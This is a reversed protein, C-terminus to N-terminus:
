LHCYLVKLAELEEILAKNQKELLTVRNELSRVYEKKKRRCERAAERNKILRLERKHSTVETVEQSSHLSSPSSMTAVSQPLSVTSSCIEPASMDRTAANLSFNQYIPHSSGISIGCEPELTYDQGRSASYIAPAQVCHQATKVSMMEAIIISQPLSPCSYNLTNRVASM